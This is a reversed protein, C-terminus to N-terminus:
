QYPEVVFSSTAVLAYVGNADQSSAGVASTPLMPDFIACARLVMLDNNGGLTWNIVPEGTASRDVCDGQTNMDTWARPDKREMELKVSNLCDPIIAATECIMEKLQAHTPNELAGIRVQRVTVDVARELMVNRLGISGSEYTAAFFFMAAPLVMMFELTSTGDENRCFSKAARAMKQITTMM